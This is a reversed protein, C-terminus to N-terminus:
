APNSSLLIYKVGLFVAIILGGVIAGLKKRLFEKQRSVKKYSLYILVQILVGIFVGIYLIEIGAWYVMSVPLVVCFLSVLELDRIHRPILERENGM